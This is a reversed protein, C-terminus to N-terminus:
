NPSCLFPVLQEIAALKSSDKDVLEYIHDKLSDLLIDSPCGVLESTLQRQLVIYIYLM